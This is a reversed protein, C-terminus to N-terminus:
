VERDLGFALLLWLTGPHPLLYHALCIGYHGTMDWVVSPLDRGRLCVM